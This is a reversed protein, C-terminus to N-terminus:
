SQHEPPEAGFESDTERGSTESTWTRQNQLSSAPIRLELQPRATAVNRHVSGIAAGVDSSHHIGREAGTDGALCAGGGGGRGGGGGAAKCTCARLQPIVDCLQHLRLPQQGRDPLAHCAPLGARMRQHARASRPRGSRSGPPRGTAGGAPRRRLRSRPWATRCQHARGRGPDGMPGSRSAAPPSLTM